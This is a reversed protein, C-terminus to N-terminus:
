EVYSLVFAIAYKKSHSLSISFDDIGMDNARKLITGRMKIYPAGNANSLVEINKWNFGQINGGLAKLIAEKAAFHAALTNARKQSNTIEEETFLRQLFKDKWTNIAREFDPIEVIDTGIYTKGM